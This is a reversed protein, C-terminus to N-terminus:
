KYRKGKIKHKKRKKNVSKKSNSIKIQILNLIVVAFITGVAVVPAIDGTSPSSIKSTNSNTSTNANTTAPQTSSQQTNNNIITTQTNNIVTTTSTINEKNEVATNAKYRYTVKINTKGMTGTANEPSEVLTFGNIDKSNAIYSDGEHGNIEENEALKKDTGVELYEVTIKIKRIYYYKVEIEDLTMTGEANEPLKSEVLDYGEFEKSTTKYSDGEYGEYITEKEILEGTMIDIPKEVVGSSPHAYYYKVYITIGITGDESVTTEMTGETNNSTEVLVYSEFKKEETKYSDGEHGYIYETSDVETYTKEDESSDEVKELLNKGTNKDIYEVVVNTKRIYYYNVEIEDVTMTGEASEPLKSEVLDYGEFEKSTTKYSDGESGEYTTEEILENTKVNIHKEVVKANHVYYYTVTTEPTIVGDESVTVEMTGKSNTPYKEEVLKYDQIEKEQTEYEDGEYGYKYDPTELENGTVIDVYMTKVSAPRIYYYIVEILEPKMIGEHNEPIYSDKANLEKDKLVKDLIEEKYNAIIEELTSVEYAEKLEEQEEETYKELEVLLNEDILYYMKNTVMQYSEFEKSTTEYSTGENGEHLENYLIEGTIINVHKEIVGESVKVYYYNLTITDKAMTVTTNEPSEVLVYGEFNDSKSTYEDGVKGEETITKLMEGSNKDIHNVIVKTNQLYYYIVTIPTETMTGSTNNTSEVFTYNEIEKQETTYDKGIYGEIIEEDALVLNDTNGKELYKVIVSTNKVYYVKIVDGNNVISPIDKEETNVEIKALKYGVYKNSTNIKDKNVTLTDPQLIQVTNTETQTDGSVVKGDKYYEVTYSLEKTQSEDIEWHAYLTINKTPTYTGDSVKNKCDAESYWGAFIHGNRSPAYTVSSSNWLAYLNVTSNAVTTLNIVSQENNYIKKGNESDSWGAFSYEATKNINTSNEYNHNYTVTYKREYGNATLNKNVDYTHNSNKTEGGTAGNGNYKIVYTNAVWHAYLIKDEVMVWQKATNMYGSVETGTGINDSTLIQNGDSAETYWGVFTHGTKTPINMKIEETGKEASYVSATGYKPYYVNTGSIEGGNVNLTLSPYKISITMKATTTATTNTDTVRVIYSYDGVPASASITIKGDESIEIYNTQENNGNKEQSEEYVYSGTGDSAGNIKWEQISTSYYFEKSQEEFTLKQWTGALTPTTFSTLSEIDIGSYKTTDDLEIGNEDKVKKWNTGTSSFGNSKEWKFNNGFVVYKLKSDGSFMYGMDTVNATDFNSVDLSTLSSCTCFMWGMDTVNATDFNSLDLSTLKSCNSFMGYMNTVNATNFNSVDLNTLSSCYCFMYGM